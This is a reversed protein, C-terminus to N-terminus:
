RLASSEARKLALAAAILGAHPFGQPFNGLHEGTKEDIEEAFLGLPTARALLAEFLQRAQQTEGQMALVEVLWFTCYAFTAEGGPLGDANHYRYVLGNATLKDLVARTTALMRPDRADVFGVIPLLLNSADPAAFGYAQVFGLRADVGQQEVQARIADAEREWGTIDGAFGQERAMQAASTLAVWAMAKSLVFHRPEARMEWIGSDPERWTRAVHDALGRALPWTAAGATGSERLYGLLEGYVDLQRQTAAGNGVRVPASARHGRLHPLEREDLDSQGSVTYMVRMDAPDRLTAEVWRTFRQAEEAHGVDQLAKACLAADRLWAFRYDWNRVGGIGEPLSTTPAAVLAGTPAYQLLKLALASRRVMPAEPGEFRTQASWARWRAVTKAELRAPSAALPADFPVPADFPRHRLMVDFREGEGVLVRAEPACIAEPAQLLMIEGAGRALLGAPTRSLRPTVQGYAFRPQFSLALEVTGEIGEVRRVLVADEVGSEDPFPMFDCVRVRGARTTHLTELVNTDSVYRMLSAAEVTPGLRFHGGREADLIAGFASPADFRGPCWWDLTGDSALLAVSRGDGVAGHDAIARERVTALLSRATTPV